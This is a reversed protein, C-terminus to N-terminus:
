PTSTVADATRADEISVVFVLDHETDFWYVLLMWPWPGLVFRYDAGPVGVRSGLLPYTELPELSRRVRARTSAPLDRTRILRDLDSQARKTVLVAPM